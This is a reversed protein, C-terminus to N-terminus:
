VQHFLDSKSFCISYLIEWDHFRFFLILLYIGCLIQIWKILFTGKNFYSSKFCRSLRLIDREKDVYTEGNSNLDFTSIWIIHDSIALVYAPLIKISVKLSRGAPSEWANHLRRVRLTWCRSKCRPCCTGGPGKRLSMVVKEFWWAIGM